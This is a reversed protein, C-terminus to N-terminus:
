PADQILLEAILDAAHGDGYLGKTSVKYKVNEVAKVIRDSAADVLTNCGAQITEVWETENRITLCPVNFWYAEKQVGGSDTMIINAHKELLLMEFYSVPEIITVNNFEKGLLRLQKKTRPHLPLIVAMRDKAILDLASFIESLRDLDDTNNSRHITALIYNKSEINLSSFPDVKEEAIKTFRKVADYMVDGVNHVGNAIGENRLNLTATATPCLFLTTVHDTLVRNHEEPMEKNFSRLGAEVHAVPLNLKCAALAGALTSNTDGYVLTWDPSEKILLEEIKILMHATQFGHLGSGIGLDIDPQRL